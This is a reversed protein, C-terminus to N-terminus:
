ARLPTLSHQARQHICLRRRVSRSPTAPVWLRLSSRRFPPRCQLSRMQTLGWVELPCSAKLDLASPPSNRRMTTSLRQRGRHSRFEMRFWPLQETCSLPSPPPRLLSVNTWVGSARPYALCIFGLRFTSEPLSIPHHIAAGIVLRWPRALPEILSFSTVPRHCEHAVDANDKIYQLRFM